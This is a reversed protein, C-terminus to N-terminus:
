IIFNFEGMGLLNNDYLVYDNCPTTIKLKINGKERKWSCTVRGKPSDYHGNAFDLTEFFYPKIEMKEFSAANDNPSIGIITKMMWSLVDSYMQHNKSDTCNWSEWLTTAGKDLWHRYSPFEKATVIKMAYDELRCKNLAMYLYRLGVMGCDHHFNNSEVLTKLQQALPSLNDYIEFYIILSVATQENVKCTGDSNIFKKLLALQRDKEATFIEDDEGALLAALATIRCFKVRHVANILALPTIATGYGHPNAWDCLGWNDIYGKANEKSKIFELYRKFYPLAYILADSNGSHM